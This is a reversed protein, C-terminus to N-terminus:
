FRKNKCKRTYFNDKQFNFIFFYKIFIFLQIDNNGSNLKTSKIDKLNFKDKYVKITMVMIFTVLIKIKRTSISIKVGLHVLFLITGQESELRVM